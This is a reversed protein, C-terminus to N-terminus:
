RKGEFFGLLDAALDRIQSKDHGLLQRYVPIGAVLVDCVKRHNEPELAPYPSNRNLYINHRVVSLLKRLMAQQKGWAAEHALVEIVFPIIYPTSDCIMGSCQGEGFLYDLANGFADGRLLLRRIFDPMDSTYGGFYVHTGINAWDIKDLGELM